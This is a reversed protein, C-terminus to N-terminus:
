SWSSHLIPGECWLRFWPCTDEFSNMSTIFVLPSRTKTIHFSEMLCLPDAADIYLRPHRDQFKNYNEFCFKYTYHHGGTVYIMHIM